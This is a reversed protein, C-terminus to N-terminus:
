VGVEIPTYNRTFEGQGMLYSLITQPLGLCIEGKCPALVM